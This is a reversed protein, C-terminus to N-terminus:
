PKVGEMLKRVLECDEAVSAYHGDVFRIVCKVDGAFQKAGDDEERAESLQTVARPNITVTRGDIMHLVVLQVAQFAALWLM